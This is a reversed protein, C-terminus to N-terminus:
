RRRSAGWLGFLIVGLWGFSGGAGRLTPVNAIM